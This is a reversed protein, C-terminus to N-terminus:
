KENRELDGAVSPVQARLADSSGAVALLLLESITRVNLNM